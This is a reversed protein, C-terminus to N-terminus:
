RDGQRRRRQGAGVDGGARQDEDGRQREARPPEDGEAPRRRVSRQNFAQEDVREEEAHERQV